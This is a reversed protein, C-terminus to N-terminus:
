NIQTDGGSTSNSSGMTIRINVKKFFQWVPKVVIGNSMGVVCLSCPKWSRQMKALAQGKRRLGKKEKKGPALWRLPHSITDGQKKYDPKGM